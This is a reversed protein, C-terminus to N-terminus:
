SGSGEELITKLNVLTAMRRAILMKHRGRRRMMGGTLAQPYPMVMWFTYETRTGGSEDLTLNYGGRNPRRGSTLATSFVRPPVFEVVKETGTFLKGTASTQAILESGLGLPPPTALEWRTMEPMYVPVNEPNTIYEFIAAPPRNIVISTVTTFTRRRRPAWWLCWASVLAVLVLGAVPSVLLYSITLGLVLVGYAAVTLRYILDTEQERAVTSRRRRVRLAIVGAILVGTIAWSLALIESVLARM